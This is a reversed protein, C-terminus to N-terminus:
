ALAQSRPSRTRLMRHHRRAQLGNYNGLKIGCELGNKVEKVDDQFRRLTDFAGDYVPQKGRLVRARASRLMKGDKVVSGGVRGKSLKFVQLIEAHGLVHERTELDLLGLMAEKIQDLLEYIISYLKVEVGERRAISVAKNELKTNFGIVIADSASALLVDSETIAGAGAHIINLDIKASEIEKLSTTIAEATGQVDTKLIIKLTKKAGEDITEIFTDLTARKPRELKTKRLEEHREESLKRAERDSKMEVLEDGVNPVNDFGIVEVPISPAAEKVSTGSDDILSKIKGAHPGCIFPKGVRLTGSKVIVSATPGRGPQITAEIVTARGPGQPSAHLELMEAQLLITELLSEIGDGTLASVEVCEIEGGLDTPALDIAQLQTKVKLPDAGKADSKNIAVVITVGAEKAHHIAEKTQPMIGDDAAVVLIVIDTISAGRARMQAFAAHGPTDIFTIQKGNKELSYAAVHQTIGGAEGSALKSTRIRDLLSTKGHDVHGMLTIIPARLPLEDVAEEDIEPPPPEEIVEETKHVGGGKERKEREFVFGHKECIQSAIDPEISGKVNAFVGLEMLDKILRFAKLDMKEALEEIMIPPKLHIVDEPLPEDEGEDGASTAASTEGEAAPSGLAASKAAEVPDITKAEEKFLSIPPLVGEKSAAKKRAKKKQPKGSVSEDLLDLVEKTPNDVTEATESKSLDAEEPEPLDTKKALTKDGSKDKKDGAM